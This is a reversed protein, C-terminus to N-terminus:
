GVVEEGVASEAPAAEAAMAEEEPTMEENVVAEEQQAMEAQQQMGMKMAWYQRSRVLEEDWRPIGSNKMVGVDDLIQMQYLTLAKQFLHTKSVPLTSGPTVRVDFEAEEPMPIKNEYDIIPTGDPGIQAEKPVNISVWQAADNTLPRNMLTAESGAIKFIRETTYFEQVMAIVLQGLRKIASEMFRVKLRMRVNAAEQLMEIAIGAEIGEPRRGQLVDVNGLVIDFDQKDVQNIEFLAAPIQPPQLWGIAQPGGEAPLVLGPRAVISEYEIGSAPDVVLIPNSTYRLIDLIHGRRKNIELQLREVQQVEGMAWLSWTHPHDMFHVFPYKGHRFPSPRHLILKSNVVVTQWLTGDKMRKWRELVTVLRDDSKGASEGDEGTTVPYVAGGDTTRLFDSEGGTTTKQSTINRELTLEPARPGSERALQDQFMREAVAKPLNEAHIVYEADDLDRAYPAVFMHAPDVEVIRIDGLGNRASPDWLVKCFGNGFILTNLVTRPLRVDMGNEDWLWDLVHTLVTATAEHEPHRALVSMSPRNDTMIPLITQIVSWTLNVTPTSQWSPQRGDWHRGAYLLYFRSWDKSFQQKYNKADGFESWVSKAEADGPDADMEAPEFTGPTSGSDKLEM